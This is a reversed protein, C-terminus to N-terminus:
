DYLYCRFVSREKGNSNWTGFEPSGDRGRCIEELTTREMLRVNQSVENSWFKLLGSAVAWVIIGFGIALLLDKITFKM